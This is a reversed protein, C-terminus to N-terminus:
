IVKSIRSEIRGVDQSKKGQCRRKFGVFIFVIFFNWAYILLLSAHYKSFKLKIRIQKRKNIDEVVAEKACMTKIKFLFHTM